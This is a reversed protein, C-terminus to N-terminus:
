KGKKLRGWADFMNHQITIFTRNVILPIKGKNEMFIGIVDDREDTELGEDKLLSDLVDPAHHLAEKRTKYEGCPKPTGNESKVIHWM